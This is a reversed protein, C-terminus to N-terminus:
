GKGKFLIEVGLNTCRYFVRIKNSMAKKVPKRM